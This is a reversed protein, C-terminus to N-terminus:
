QFCKYHQDSPCFGDFIHWSNMISGVKSFGETLHYDGEWQFILMVKMLINADSSVLYKLLNEVEPNIGTNGMPHLV